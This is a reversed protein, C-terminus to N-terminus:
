RRFTLFFDHERLRLTEDAVSIFHARGDSSKLKAILLSLKGQM